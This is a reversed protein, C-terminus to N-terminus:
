GVEGAFIEGMKDLSSTGVTLYGIDVGWNVLTWNDGETFMDHANVKKEGTRASFETVGELGIPSVLAPPTDPDSRRELTM